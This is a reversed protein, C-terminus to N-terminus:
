PLVWEERYCSADMRKVFEQVREVMWGSVVQEQAAATAVHQHGLKIATSTRCTRGTLSFQICKPDNNCTQRCEEFSGGGSGQETDSLNDWDDYRSRIKPLVLSRFIDKHRLM